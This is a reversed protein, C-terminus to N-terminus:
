RAGARHVVVHRTFKLTCYPHVSVHGMPRRENKLLHTDCTSCVFLMEHTNNNNSYRMKNKLTDCKVIVQIWIRDTTIGWVPLRVQNFPMVKNPESIVRGVPSSKGICCLRCPIYLNSALRMLLSRCRWLWVWPPDHSDFTRVPWCGLFHIRWNCLM